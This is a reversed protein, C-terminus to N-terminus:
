SGMQEQKECLKLMLGLSNSKLVDKIHTAYKVTANHSIKVGWFQVNETFFDTKFVQKAQFVQSFVQM